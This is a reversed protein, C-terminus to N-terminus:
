TRRSRQITHIARLAREIKAKNWTGTQRNIRINSLPILRKVANPLVGHYNAVSNNFNLLERAELLKVRRLKQLLNSFKANKNESTSTTQWNRFAKSFKQVDDVRGYMTRYKSPTNGEYVNGPAKFRNIVRQVANNYQRKKANTAMGYIVAFQNPDFLGQNVRSPSYHRRAVQSLTIRSPLNHWTSGHTGANVNPGTLSRTSTSVANRIARRIYPRAVAYFSRVQNPTLGPRKPSKIRIKGLREALANVTEATQRRTRATRLREFASALAERNRTPKMRKSMVLEGRKVTSEKLKKQFRRRRITGPSPVYKTSRRGKM